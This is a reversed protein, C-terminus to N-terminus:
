FELRLAFQMERPTGSGVPTVPSVATNVTNVISGFGATNSPNFSFLPPGLQPHNFINYFESRFELRGREALPFTKDAALDIQRAGRKGSSENRARM